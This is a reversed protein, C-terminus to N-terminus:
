VAVTSRAPTPVASIAGTQSARPGAIGVRATQFSCRVRPTTDAKIASVKKKASVRNGSASAIARLKM